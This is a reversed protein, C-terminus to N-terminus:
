LLPSKSSISVLEDLTSLHINYKECLDIFEENSGIYSDTINKNDYDKNLELKVGFIQSVHKALTHIDTCLSCADIIKKETKKENICELILDSLVDFSVYSRLVRGKSRLYIDEDSKGKCIFESLASWSVKPTLKGAAGYVRFILPSCIKLFTDEECKKLESYLDKKDESDNVAGSSIVFVSTIKNARVYNSVTDIINFNITKYKEDGYEFIKDRTLFAAQIVVDVDNIENIHKLSITKLANDISPIRIDRGDSTVLILNALANKSFRTVYNLIFSKGFWGSAGTLLIKKRPMIM